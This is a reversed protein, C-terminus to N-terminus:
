NASRGASQQSLVTLRGLRVAIPLVLKGIKSNEREQATETVPIGDLPQM